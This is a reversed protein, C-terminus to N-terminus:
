HIYKKYYEFRKKRRAEEDQKAKEEEDAEEDTEEKQQTKAPKASNEILDKIIKDKDALLKEYHERQAKMIESEVIEDKEESTM